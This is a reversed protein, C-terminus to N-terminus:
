GAAEAPTLSSLHQCHSHDGILVSETSETGEIGGLEELYVKVLAKRDESYDDSDDQAIM